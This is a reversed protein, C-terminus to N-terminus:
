AKGRLVSPNKQIGSGIYYHKVGARGVGFGPLFGRVIGEASSVPKSFLRCSLAKTTVAQLLLQFSGATGM